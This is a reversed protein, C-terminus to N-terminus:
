PDDRGESAAEFFGCVFALVVFLAGVFIWGGLTM